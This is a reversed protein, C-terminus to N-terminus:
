SAQDKGFYSRRMTEYVLSTLDDVRSNPFAVLVHSNLTVIVPKGTFRALSVMKGAVADVSQGPPSEYEVYYDDVSM